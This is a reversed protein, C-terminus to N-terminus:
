KEWKINFLKIYSLCKKKNLNMYKYYLFYAGIGVNFTFLISFLVIYFICSNYKCNTSNIKVLSTEEDINEDCEDVFKDVLRKRCKCNEYNFVWRFWM